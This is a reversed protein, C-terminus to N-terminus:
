AICFVLIGAMAPKTTIPVLTIKLRLRIRTMFSYPIGKAYEMEENTQVAFRYEPSILPLLFGKDIDLELYSEKIEEPSALTCGPQLRAGEWMSTHIHVDIKKM